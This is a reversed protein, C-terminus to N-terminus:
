LRPKPKKPYLPPIHLLFTRDRGQFTLSTSVQYTGVAPPLIDPLTALCGSLLLQSLLILFWKITSTNSM